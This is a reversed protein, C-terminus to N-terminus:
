FEHNTRCLIASVRETLIHLTCPPSRPAHRSLAFEALVVRSREARSNNGLLLKSRPGATSKESSTRSDQSYSTWGIYANGSEYVHHRAASQFVPNTLKACLRGCGAVGVGHL